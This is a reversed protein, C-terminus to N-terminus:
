APGSTNLLKENGFGESRPADSVGQHFAQTVAHTNIRPQHYMFSSASSRKILAQPKAFIPRILEIVTGDSWLFSAWSFRM